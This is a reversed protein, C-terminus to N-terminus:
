FWKELFGLMSRAKALLFGLGSGALLFLLFGPLEPFSHPNKFTLSLYYVAIILVFVLKQIRSPSIDHTKKDRLLGQLNIKQTLIQYFVVIIFSALLLLLEYKLFVILETM